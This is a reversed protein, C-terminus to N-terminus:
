SKEDNLSKPFVSQSIADSLWSNETFIAKFFIYEFSITKVSSYSIVALNDKGSTFTVMFIQSFHKHFKMQYDHIKM